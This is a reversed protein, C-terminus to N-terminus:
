FLADSEKGDTMAHLTSVGRSGEKSAIKNVSDARWIVLPSAPSFNYDDTLCKNKM